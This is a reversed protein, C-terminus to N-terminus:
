FFMKKIFFATLKNRGFDLNSLKSIIKKKLCKQM